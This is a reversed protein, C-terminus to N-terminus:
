SNVKEIRAIRIEDASTFQLQTVRAGKQIQTLSHKSFPGSLELLITDQPELSQKKRMDQVQRIVERVSGEEKLAPTINTDLSVDESFSKSVTVKKVNLEEKLIEVLDPTSVKSKKLQLASLPQRVKIGARARFELGQSAIMRVEKMETLLKKNKVHKKPWGELHVSQKKGGLELYIADATFPIFPAALVAVQLLVEKLVHMSKGERMRDRSRRVYWRSIDDGVFEELARAAGVIDYADMRKEVVDRVEALRTIIWTDLIHKKTSVRKPKYMQYFRVTNTLLDIFNRKAQLVDKESFLKPDEPQNVTFFYWRTADAGYEEFLKIPDIINGRSKSMKKGHEDNVFGVSLVNKYPAGKGLLVSVALLTYFWGRTQDIGECIYDAPYSLKKDIREKNDFPYHWSAYPMAGSDFWVDAVDPVREMRAHCKECYVDFEDIYPKHLDLEGRDNRPVAIPIVKQPSGFKPYKTNPLTESESTGKMIDELFWLPAAHSVLVIVSDSYKSELKSFVKYMRTKVDNWNESGKGFIRGSFKEKDSFNNEHSINKGESEGFQMEELSPDINVPLDLEKGLIEATERTRLLPSAFIIDVGLRQLKKAASKAETKGKQTLGYVDKDAKSVYVERQNSKAMGHRILYYTNGSTKSRVSLRDISSLVETTKCDDCKWIPLPTGWYRERSFAWDKAEKLWQGFRGEKLHAPYWHVKSNARVLQERVQSVSLWWSRRAFYILPTDCRWCFPYEHEYEETKWLFGKQELDKVILPNAKRVDMGKWQGASENFIGEETLTMLVPLDAEKAVRMDDEGFAPAIHVMGTGEDRSIFDGAVITYPISADGQFIPEYVLGLLKEGKEEFLIPAEPFVREAFEKIVVFKEGRDDVTVYTAEPDIAVAVNAPLTWPTTTWVLLSARRTKLHLRITVSTDTVTKYGQALEHSSLATGCRTCWPLVKNGEYLFGKKWFEGIIWFLSEIYQNTMTIYPNKLDLWYGMRETVEEFKSKYLFVDERATEVFKRIGVKEEIERKSNIGLKKEAAMETPLGHTDWGARREVLFGRMTKYRAVVDKFARSEVHHIGPKGNAYPPGEFFVFRKVGKGKKSVTKEFISREAWLGLVEEESRM